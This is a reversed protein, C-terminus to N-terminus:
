PAACSAAPQACSVTCFLDRKPECAVFPVVHHEDQTRTQRTNASGIDIQRLKRAQHEGLFGKSTQRRRLAKFAHFSADLPSSTWLLEHGRGISQATSISPLDM